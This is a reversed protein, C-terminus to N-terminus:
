CLLCTTQLLFHTNANLYTPIFPNYEIIQDRLWCLFLLSLRRTPDSFYFIILVKYLGSGHEGDERLTTPKAM